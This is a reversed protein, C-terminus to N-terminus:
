LLRAAGRRVGARSTRVARSAWLDHPLAVLRRIQNWQAQPQRKAPRPRPAQSPCRSWTRREARLPLSEMDCQGLERSNLDPSMRSPRTADPAKAAGLALAPGVGCLHSERAFLVAFFSRGHM